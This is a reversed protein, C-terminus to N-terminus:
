TNARWKLLGHLLRFGQRCSKYCNKGMQKSTNQSLCQHSNTGSEARREMVCCRQESVRGEEHWPRYLTLRIRITDRGFLMIFGGVVAHILHVARRSHWRPFLEVRLVAPGLDARM